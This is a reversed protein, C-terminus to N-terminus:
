FSAQVDLYIFAFVVCVGTRSLYEEWREVAGEEGAERLINMGEHDMYQISQWIPHEADAM